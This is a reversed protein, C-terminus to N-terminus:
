TYKRLCGSLDRKMVYGDSCEACQLGPNTCTKCNAIPAACENTARKSRVEVEQDSVILETIFILM